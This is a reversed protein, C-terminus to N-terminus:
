ITATTIEIVTDQAPMSSALFEDVTMPAGNVTLTVTEEPPTVVDSFPHGAAVYGEEAVEGDIKETMLYLTGSFVLERGGVKATVDIIKGHLTGNAEGEGDFTFSIEGNESIAYRFTCNQQEPAMVVIEGFAQESDSLQLVAELKGAEDFSGVIGAFRQSFPKEGCCASLFMSLLSLALIM